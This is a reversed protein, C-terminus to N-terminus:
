SLLEDEIAQLEEASKGKKATGRKGTAKAPGTNSRRLRATLEIGLRVRNRIYEEHAQKASEDNPDGKYDWQGAHQEKQLEILQANLATFDEGEAPSTQAEISM